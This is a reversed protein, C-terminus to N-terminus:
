AHIAALRSRLLTPFHPANALLMIPFNPIPIHRLIYSFLPLRFKVFRIKPALDTSGRNLRVYLLYQAVHLM